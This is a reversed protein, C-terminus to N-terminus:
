KVNFAKCLQEVMIGVDEFSLEVNEEEYVRESDYEGYIDYNSPKPLNEINHKRFIRNERGADVLMMISLQRSEIETKGRQILEVIEKRTFVGSLEKLPKEMKGYLMLPLYKSAIMACDRIVFFAGKNIIKVGHDPTNMAKEARPALSKIGDKSYEIIKAEVSM